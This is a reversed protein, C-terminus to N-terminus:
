SECVSIGADISSVSHFILCSPIRDLVCKSQGYTLALQPLISCYSLRKRWIKYRQIDETSKWPHLPNRFLGLIYIGQSAGSFRLVCWLAVVSSGLVKGAMNRSEKGGTSSFYVVLLTILM